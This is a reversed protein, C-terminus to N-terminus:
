TLSLTPPAVESAVPKGSLFRGSKGMPISCYTCHYRDFSDSFHICTSTFHTRKRDDEVCGRGGGRILHTTTAKEENALIKPLINLCENGAQTQKKFRFNARACLGYHSLSSLPSHSVKGQCNAQSSREQYTGLSHRSLPMILGSRSRQTLPTHTNLHLRCVVSKDSHGPDKVHWQPLM